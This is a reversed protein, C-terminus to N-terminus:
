PQREGDPFMVYYGAGADPFIKTKADSEIVGSHGCRAAQADLWSWGPARATNNRADARSQIVRVKDGMKFARELIPGDDDPSLNQTKHPPPRCDYCYDASCKHCFWREGMKKKACAKCTWGDAYATNGAFNSRRMSHLRSCTPAEFANDKNNLITCEDDIARIKPGVWNFFPRHQQLERLLEISHSEELSVAANYEKSEDLDFAVEHKKGNHYLRVTGRLADLEMDVIDGPAFQIPLSNRSESPVGHEFIGKPTITCAFESASLSTATKADFGESVVGIEWGDEAALRFSWRHVDGTDSDVRVRGLVLAVGKAGPMAVDLSNVDSSFKAHASCEKMDWDEVHQLYEGEYQVEFNAGTSFM